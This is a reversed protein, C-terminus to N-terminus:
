CSRAIKTIKGQGGGGRTASPSALPALCSFIIAKGDNEKLGRNILKSPPKAFFHTGFHFERLRFAAFGNPKMPTKPMKADEFPILKPEM